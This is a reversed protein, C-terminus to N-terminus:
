DNLVQAVASNVIYGTQDGTPADQQIKRVERMQSHKFVRSTAFSLNLAFNFLVLVPAVLSYKDLYASIHLERSCIVNTCLEAFRAPGMALACKAV